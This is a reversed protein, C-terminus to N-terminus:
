ASKRLFEWAALVELIAQDSGGVDPHTTKVKARYAAQIQSRSWTKHPDLGLTRLHQARLDNAAARPEQGLASSSQGKDSSRAEKEDAKKQRFRGAEQRWGARTESGAQQARFAQQREQERLRAEREDLERERRRVDDYARRYRLAWLADGLNGAWAFVSAVRGLHHSAMGALFIGLQYNEAQLANVYLSAGLLLLVVLKWTRLNHTLHGLVYGAGFSFLGLFVIQSM